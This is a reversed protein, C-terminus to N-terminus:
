VMWAPTTACSQRAWDQVPVGATAALKAGRQPTVRCTVAARGVAWSLQARSQEAPGLETPTTGVAVPLKGASATMEASRRVMNQGRDGEASFIWLRVGCLVPPLVLLVASTDSRCHNTSGLTLFFAWSGTVPMLSKRFFSCGWLYHLHFLLM